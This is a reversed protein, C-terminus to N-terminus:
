AVLRRSSVPRALPLLQVVVLLPLALLMPRRRRGAAAAAAAAAAARAKGGAGATAAQGRGGAGAAAAARRHVVLALQSPLRRARPVALGTRKCAWPSQVQPRAPQAGRGSPQRARARPLRRHRGAHRQPDLSRRLATATAGRCGPLRRRGPQQV